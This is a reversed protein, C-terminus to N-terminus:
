VDLELVQAEFVYDKKSSYFESGVWNWADIESDFELTYYRESNWVVVMWVTVM